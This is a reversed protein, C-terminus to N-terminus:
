KFVDLTSLTETRGRIRVISGGSSDNGPKRMDAPYM